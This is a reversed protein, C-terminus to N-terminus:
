PTCLALSCQLLSVHVDEYYMAPITIGAWAIHLLLEDATLHDLKLLKFGCGGLRLPTLLRIM